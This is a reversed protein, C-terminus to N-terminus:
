KEPETCEHLCPRKNEIRCAINRQYVDRQTHRMATASVRVQRTDYFFLYSFDVHTNMVTKKKYYIYGIIITNNNHPTQTDCGNEKEICINM